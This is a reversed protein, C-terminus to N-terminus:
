QDSCISGFFFLFYTFFFFLLYQWWVLENEIEKKELFSKRIIIVVLPLSICGISHITLYINDPLHSHSNSSTLENGLFKNKQKTGEVLCGLKGGNLGKNRFFFEKCPSEEKMGTKISYNPEHTGTLLPICLPSNIYYHLIPNNIRVKRM